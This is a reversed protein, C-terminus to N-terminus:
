DTDEFPCKHKKGVQDTTELYGRFDVKYSQGTISGSHFTRTINLDCFINLEGHFALIDKDDFIDNVATMCEM